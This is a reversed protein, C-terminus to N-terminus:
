RSERVSNAIPAFYARARVRCGPRWEEELTMARGNPGLRLRARGSLSDSRSSATELRESADGPQALRSCVVLFGLLDCAM